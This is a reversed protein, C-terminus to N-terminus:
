SFEYGKIGLKQCMDEIHAINLNNEDRISEVIIFKLEEVKTEHLFDLAECIIDFEKKSLNQISVNETEVKKM